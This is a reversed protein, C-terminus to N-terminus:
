ELDLYDCGRIDQTKDYILLYYGAAIYDCV